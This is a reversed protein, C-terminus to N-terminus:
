MGEIFRLLLSSTFACNVRIASACVWLGETVPRISVELSGCAKIHITRVLLFQKRRVTCMAAHGSTQLLFNGFVLFLSEVVPWFRFSSTELKLRGLKAFSPPCRCEFKGIRPIGFNM